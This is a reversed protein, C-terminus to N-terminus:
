SERTWVFACRKGNRIFYKGLHDEYIITVDHNLGHHKLLANFEQKEADTKIAPWEPPDETASTTQLMRWSYGLAVGILIIAFYKTFARSYRDLKEILRM